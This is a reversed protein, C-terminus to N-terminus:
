QDVIGLAKEAEELRQTNKAVPAWLDGFRALRGWLNAITIDGNKITEVEDWTIPLSVPAGPRPRVSYVSAITQGFANRNHDIFVRGKRKPIDWDMTLDGSNAAVMVRGVAEVFARVRSHSYGTEIPVYVHLGRAGSLKPYGTLGLQGLAVRLLKAGAVVQDWTSGAAPDLDFIALDPTDLSGARSHFPHIEICGMNAFWMLSERDEALLFDIAGGM